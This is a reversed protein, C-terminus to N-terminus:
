GGIAAREVEVLAVLTEIIDQPKDPGGVLKIVEAEPAERGTRKRVEDIVYAYLARMENPLNQIGPRQVRPKKRVLDALVLGLVKM